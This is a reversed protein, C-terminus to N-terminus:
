CRFADLFDGAALRGFTPLWGRDRWDSALVADAAVEM